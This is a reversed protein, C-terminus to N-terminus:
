VDVRTYWGRFIYNVPSGRNITHRITWINAVQEAYRKSVPSFEGTEEDLAYIRGDAIDYVMTAYHVKRRPSRWQLIRRPPDVARRKTQATLLLMRDHDNLDRWWEDVIEVAKRSYGPWDRVHPM